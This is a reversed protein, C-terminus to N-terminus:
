PQSEVAQRVTRGAMREPALPDVGTVTRTLRRGLDIMPRELVLNLGTAVLLSTGLGAALILFTATWEHPGIAQHSRDLQVFPLRGAFRVAVALCMAHVLYIGYSRVGIFVMPRTELLRTWFPKGLLIPIMGIAVAFPYFFFSVNRTSVFAHSGVFVFLTLLALPGSAFRSAWAYSRRHHLTFALLCGVLIASYAYYLPWGYIRADFPVLRMADLILPAFILATVGLFRLATRGRWFVFAILPWVLYFKEEVGLSWSHAFPLNAVHPTFDNMYTVFWPLASLLEDRHGHLNAGIALAVYIALVLYYLPLIRCARRIYFAGISVSGRKAEERLALTTILFGSIVFFIFVGLGGKVPKWLRSNSHLLVVLLISVARLGDLGRFYKESLYQEYKLTM